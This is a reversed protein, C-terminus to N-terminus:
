SDLSPLVSDHQWSLGRPCPLQLYCTVLVLQSGKRGGVHGAQVASM